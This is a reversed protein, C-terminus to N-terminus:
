IKVQGLIEVENGAVHQKVKACFKDSDVGFHNGILQLSFSGSADPRLCTLFKLSNPGFAEQFIRLTSTKGQFYGRYLDTRVEAPHRQTRKAAEEIIMDFLIFAPHYPLSSGTLYDKGDPSKRYYDLSEVNIMETIIENIGRFVKNRVNEYGFLGGSRFQLTYGNRKVPFTKRSFAHVIEHNARRLIEAETGEEPIVCEGSEFVHWGSSNKPKQGGYKQLLRQFAQPSVFIIKDLSPIRKIVSLDLRNDIWKILNVMLNRVAIEREPNIIRGSNEPQVFRLNDLYGAVEQKEGTSLNGGKYFSYRPLEPRTM